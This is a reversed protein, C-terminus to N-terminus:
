QPIDGASGEVVFMKGPLDGDPATQGEALWASGDQKNIPGTFPHYSGAAISDRLAEAEAKVDAPVAETIAGIEVEGEAIGAWVDTSGWTGDLVQGVRNVYYPAWSHTAVTSVGKKDQPGVKM